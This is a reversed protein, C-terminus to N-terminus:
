DSSLGPRSWRKKLVAKDGREGPQGPRAGEGLDRYCAAADGQIGTRNGLAPSRSRYLQNDGDVARQARSLCSSASRVRTAPFRAETRAADCRLAGKNWHMNREYSAPM